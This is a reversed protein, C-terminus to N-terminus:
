SAEQELSLLVDTDIQELELQLHKYARRLKGKVLDSNSKFALVQIQNIAEDLAAHLILQPIYGVTPFREECHSSCFRKFDGALSSTADFPQHCTKCIPYTEVTAKHTSTGVHSSCGTGKSDIKALSNM